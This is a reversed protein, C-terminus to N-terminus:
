QLFNKVRGSEEKKGTPILWFATFSDSSSPSPSSADNYQRHLGDTIDCSKQISHSIFPM